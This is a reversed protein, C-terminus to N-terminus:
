MSSPFASVVASAGCLLFRVADEGTKFLMTWDKGHNEPKKAM